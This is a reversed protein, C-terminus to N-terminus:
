RENQKNTEDGEGEKKRHVCIDHYITYNPDKAEMMMM